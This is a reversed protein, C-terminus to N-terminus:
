SQSGKSFHFLFHPLRYQTFLVPFISSFVPFILSNISIPAIPVRATTTITFLNARWLDGFKRQWIGLSVEKASLKNPGVEASSVKQQANGHHHERIIIIQIPHNHQHRHHHHNRHSHRPSLPHCVFRNQGLEQLRGLMPIEVGVLIVM